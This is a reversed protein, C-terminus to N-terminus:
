LWVHVQAWVIAEVSVRTSPMLSATTYVDGEDEVKNSVILIAINKAREIRRRAMYARAVAPPSALQQTAAMELMPSNAAEIAPKGLLRVMTLEATQRATEPPGAGTPTAVHHLQFTAGHLDENGIEAMEKQTQVAKQRLESMQEVVLTL